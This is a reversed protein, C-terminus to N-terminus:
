SGDPMRSFFTEVGHRFRFKGIQIMADVMYRVTKRLLNNFMKRQFRNEIYPSFVFSKLNFVKM